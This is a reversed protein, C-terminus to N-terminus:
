DYSPGVYFQFPITEDRTWSTFSLSFFISKKSTTSRLFLTCRLSISSEVIYIALQKMIQRHPAVTFM